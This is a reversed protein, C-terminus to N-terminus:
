EKKIAKATKFITDAKAFGKWLQRIGMNKPNGGSILIIANTFQLVTPEDPTPLKVGYNVLLFSVLTFYDQKSFGTLEMPKDPCNEALYKAKVVQAVIISYLAIANKLREQKELQLKEIACGEKLAFHFIEIQWRLAYTQIVEL